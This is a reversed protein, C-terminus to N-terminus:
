ANSKGQLFNRVYATMHLQKELVTFSLLVSILFLLAGIWLGTEPQIMLVTFAAVVLLSQLSFTKLYSASFSYGYLWRALLFVQVFYSGYGVAFAIGLGTLGGWRYGILNLATQVILTFLESWFFVRTASKAVFVFAISWSAAKFLMGLAAWQMMSTIPIFQTSYLLIVVWKVALIFVILVPALILIAVEAQQNIVETAKQNDSAVGALRPYYDAGMATFIMGVYTNLIAFGANYLGVDAVSGTHSIFLRVVYSAGLTLLGTLSILFGMHLMEKGEKWVQALPIDIPKLRITKRVFYISLAFSVCSAGILAPVIGAEGYFYYLPLTFVLGLVSGYLTAQAMQRIHRMGQLIVDQGATLQNLLLTVSLWYFAATYDANGFTIQSLWPALAATLLAGLLGTIWVLKRVVSVTRVVAAENGSAHAEAINKVASKSLGFNTLAEIFITNAQLLGSLGMGAPGLLVAIAKSRIVGVIIQFVQVGGYISTAKLIQRYATRQESM